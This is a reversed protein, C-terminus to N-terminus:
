ARSFGEMLGLQLLPSPFGGVRHGSRGKYMRLERSKRMRNDDDGIGGLKMSLFAFPFLFFCRLTFPELDSPM